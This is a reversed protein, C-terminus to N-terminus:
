ISIAQCTAGRLPHTSQFGDFHRHLPVGRRRVGCPTRPNFHCERAHISNNHLRVGCPTRPNFDFPSQEIQERNGDCGALPAHISIRVTPYYLCICFDCGALPAHISIEKVEEAQEWGRPRVGCPTRPNFNVRGENVLTHGYDCGALPAHISIWSLLFPVAPAPDCGALPAHISIDQGRTSM